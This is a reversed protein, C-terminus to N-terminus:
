KNSTLNIWSHLHKSLKKSIKPFEPINLLTDNDILLTNIKAIFINQINVLSVNKINKKSNNLRQEFLDLLSRSVEYLFIPTDESINKSIYIEISKLYYFFATEGMWLLDNIYYTFNEEFLKVAQNYHMGYFHSLAVREDLDIGNSPSIENKTPVHKM